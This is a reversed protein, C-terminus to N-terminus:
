AGIDSRHFLGPAEILAVARYAAERAAAPNAGTATV